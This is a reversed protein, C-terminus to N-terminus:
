TIFRFQTRSPLKPLLKETEFRRWALYKWDIFTQFMFTIIRIWLSMEHARRFFKESACMLYGMSLSFFIVGTMVTGRSNSFCQFLSFFATTQSGYKRILCAGPIVFICMHFYKMHIRSLFQSIESKHVSFHCSNSRFPSM